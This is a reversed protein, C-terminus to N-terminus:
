AEDSGSADFCAYIKTWRSPTPSFCFSVKPSANGAVCRLHGRRSHSSCIWNRTLWKMRDERRLVAMQRDHYPAVDPNAETTLIAYSEPWDPTTPRWIGAFYFWDGDALAFSYHRGQSRFRFESAPVLCRHSPFTRGEARLLIFPRGSRERPQLGWAVDVMEVDGASHRIIVRREDLPADADFVEPTM